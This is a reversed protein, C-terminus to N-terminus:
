DHTKEKRYVGCCADNIPHRMACQACEAADRSPANQAAAIVSEFAEAIQEHSVNQGRGSRWQLEGFANLLPAIRDRTAAESVTAACGSHATL